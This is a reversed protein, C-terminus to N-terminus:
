GESEWLRDVHRSIDHERKGPSGDYYLPNTELRRALYTFSLADVFDQKSAISGRKRMDQLWDNLVESDMLTSELPLGEDLFRTFTDRQEAQCFLHFAGSQGPRVACAQMKAVEQITYARLQRDSESIQSICQAGMVIVVSARVPVTWCAERPVILVRIIGELYLQLMLTRDARHMGEHFIGIGHSILNSLASNHLRRLCIEVDEASAGRGLFARTDIDIACQTILNAAVSQCQNRSPVFLIASSDAAAESIAAHAPKTMAEFLATSHRITFSITKMTLSQERDSPRFSFLGQHPVHLWRALDMPDNLCNSVGIFRVSLLQTQSILLSVALEYEADLLELNDCLVIRLDSVWSHGADSRLAALLCSSTTIRIGKGRKALLADPLLIAEIPIRAPGQSYKFLSATEKALSRNPVVVVGFGDSGCTGVTKCLALMALTSKGSGAPACILINQYTQGVSWFCQTQIGSFDRFHLKNFTSSVANGGTVPLFPLDLLPTHCDSFSPMILEELSIKVEDEAGMWRDSMFRISVSPPPQSGRIPIVFDVEMDVTNQRLLLHSWQIIETGEHDEIWLWFPEAEGHLRSNWNFDKSVKVAIKLLDSTLPRLHHMLNVTPFQTAAKSLAAGQRENMHILQGLEAAGQSAIEAVSLEDEWRQLNYLVESSLEFQALPHEFPWMRKEVAKSMSMLVSCVNAWKRSLAIELLGRIIRGGNQAVYATDSVLAFDEIYTRSIYGQLLINVKGQSTDTGGKVDCPIVEEILRKLEKVENERLQIQDFETSMSLLGLVDAERMRPRFERNFIEISPTRIYYKAAIRGLDTIVLSGTSEHFMVMGAAALKRAATTVLQHRKSGLQPDDVPEEHTMGYVMPNRRMRVFLYTYGIWEIADRINAVTGLSVEANLSDVMGDIFKSEIPHQATVANLYHTLKDESTCIYGEGSTEMGPRGARGFIQLVDLVSLDVFAGRSSDYVQTGKIIVAHAPLNVGWALTATCCLVKIARAEFMREMMNRDSRLMGAHHIGFGDNFLEKMEKNRSTGIDRRFLSFMAHEQTSFDDLTGEAFAAERIAQATKVTEKRAHVFVMVQHGERILDIVKQYTVRDLNRRAVPSNAKGKIGLFHQELPIPRFSSDFYFLGQHRSVRLFDAVDIYNPLTASLGVIRILSQTSEVQRLTRAVITEIVAGREENLLHVEDIILLKVKSALEGEGTPKRTVVDWKEPTTVIIQTEAIESKTMQMDGTLERVRVSLWALRKRLKRVIEAALAKMPAVYIIKFDNRRIATALSGPISKANSSSLNQDIVRLVTLMAVDTKGAGTPACILLNENTGYATPYVISQIRNLSTYGPFSGRALGDLETVPILKESVRPPVPKPPPIIVEECDEKDERVTGLPLLYKAGLTSMVSGQVAASSTYVHPLVEPAQSVTGSFLPRSATARFSAEMRKKADDATFDVGGNAHQNRSQGKRSPTAKGSTAKGSSIVKESVVSTNDDVIALKYSLPLRNSLVEMVLEIADFGFMEALEESIEDDKKPSSLLTALGPLLPSILPDSVLKSYLSDVTKAIIGTRAVPVGTTWPLDLVSTSAPPDDDVSISSSAEQNFSIENSHRVWRQVEQETLDIPHLRHGGSGTLSQLHSAFSSM